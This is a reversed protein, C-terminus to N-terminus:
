TLVLKTLNKSMKVSDEVCTDNDVLKQKSDM